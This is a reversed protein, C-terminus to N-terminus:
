SIKFPKWFDDELLKDFKSEIVSKGPENRNTVKENRGEPGFDATKDETNRNLLGDREGHYTNVLLGHAIEAEEVSKYLKALRRLRSCLAVQFM